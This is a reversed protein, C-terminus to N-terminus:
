LYHKKEAIIVPEYTDQVEELIVDLKKKANNVNLVPMIEEEGRLFL